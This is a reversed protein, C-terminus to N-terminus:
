GSFDEHSVSGSDAITQSDPVAGDPPMSGEAAGGSQGVVIRGVMELSKHPACFYDYTGTTEFTHEFTAGSATLISSEWGEAGDPIRTTTAQGIGDKYAVTSHSGENNEFTVTNGAEIFLGVPDFYYEGNSTVMRVTSNEGSSGDSTPDSSEAEDDNGGSCGALGAVGATLVVGSTKLVQRREM